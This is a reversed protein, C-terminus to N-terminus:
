GAIWALTAQRGSGAHDRRHSHFRGADAATDLGGGAIVGVGAAALRRRALAYLDCCWHGRRSPRFASGAGADAALFADRLPSDVEYSGAGIAPGLWAALQGAAVGDRALAEVAAEIVGAALGRWGAHVVAVADGERSALVLPLCDASLVALVVGPCRTFAADAQPEAAAPRARLLPRTVKLVTTGHVQHLWVPQAPLALVAALRRRNDVVVAADDGGRLGLNSRQWPAASTGPAQRTTAVARIGCGAFLGCHIFGRTVLDPAPVAM